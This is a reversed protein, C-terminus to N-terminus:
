VEAENIPEEEDDDDDDDEEEEEDDGDRATQKAAQQYEDETTPKSHSPPNSTVASAPGQTAAQLQAALMSGDPGGLQSSLLSFNPMGNPQSAAAQQTPNIGSIQGGAAKLAEQLKLITSPDVGPLNALGASSPQPPPPSPQPAQFANSAGLMSLPNQGLLGALGTGKSGVTPVNLGPFGTPTANDDAAAQTTATPVESGQSHTSTENIAADKEDDSSGEESKKKAEVSEGKKIRKM